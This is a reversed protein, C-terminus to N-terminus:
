ESVKRSALTLPSAYDKKSVIGITSTQCMCIFIHTNQTDAPLLTVFIKGPQFKDTELQNSQFLTAQQM